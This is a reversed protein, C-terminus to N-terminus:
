QVDGGTGYQKLGFKVLQCGFCRRYEKGSTRSLRRGSSRPELKGASFSFVSANRVAAKESARQCKLIPTLHIRSGTSQAKANFYRLERNSIAEGFLFVGLCALKALGAKLMLLM